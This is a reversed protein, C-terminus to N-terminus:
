QLQIHLKEIELKKLSTYRMIKEISEGDALMAKAIEIDREQRGIRIGRDEATALDSIRDTEAMRRSRFLAREHEDQSISMLLESAM